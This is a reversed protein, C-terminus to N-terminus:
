STLKWKEIQKELNSTDEKAAKGVFVGREAAKVADAKRGLNALITAQQALDKLTERQAVKAESRKLAMEFWINAESDRKNAKAYSGAALPAGPDNADAAAVFERLHGLTAAVVDKVKVTFPVRVKDWSLVVTASDDTVNGIAFTLLEASTSSVEPKTPVRLADKAADYSFSGWQGDDKNFIVTWDGKEPIMSLSYKGAPLLKGNILVDDTTSFTTAENAGARWVHGYPVLPEDKGQSAGDLTAEGKAKSAFDVSAAAFITRGKVAPRSYIIAIQTSGITQAVEAKQSARPTPPRNQATAAAVSLCLIFAFFLFYKSRM